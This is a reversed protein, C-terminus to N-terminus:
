LEELVGAFGAEFEGGNGANFRDVSRLAPARNRPFTAMRETQILIASGKVHGPAILMAGRQAFRSRCERLKGRAFSRAGAEGLVDILDHVRRREAVRGGFHGRPPTLERRVFRACTGGGFIQFFVDGAPGAPEIGAAVFSEASRSVFTGKDEGVLRELGLKGVM